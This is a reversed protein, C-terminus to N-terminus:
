LVSDSLMLNYMTTFVKIVTLRSLKVVATFPSLYKPKNVDKTGDRTRPMPRIESFSILISDILYFKKIILRPVSFLLGLNIPIIM